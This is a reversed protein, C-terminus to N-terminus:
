KFLGINFKEGKEFVKRWREIKKISHLLIEYVEDLSEFPKIIFDNAGEKFSIIIREYSVYATTMIIQIFPNVEKIEKLVTLGSKEPMQIDILAIHINERKITDVVKIPNKETFVNIGGKLEFFNKLTTLILPDDDVILININKM